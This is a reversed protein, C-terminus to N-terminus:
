RSAKVSQRATLLQVFLCTRALCVADGVGSGAARKNLADVGQGTREELLHVIRENM